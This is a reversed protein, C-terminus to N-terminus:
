KPYDICDRKLDSFTTGGEAGRASLDDDDADVGITFGRTGRLLLM